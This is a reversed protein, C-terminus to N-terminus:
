LGFPKMRVITERCPENLVQIMDIFRDSLLFVLENIAIDVAVNGFDDQKGLQEHLAAVQQRRLCNHRWMATPDLLVVKGVM